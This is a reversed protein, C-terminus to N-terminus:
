KLIFGKGQLIKKLMEKARRYDSKVAEKNKEIIQSIEEITYGLLRLKLVSKYIEKSIFEISESILTRIAEIKEDAIKKEILEKDVDISNEM